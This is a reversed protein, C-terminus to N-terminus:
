RLFALLQYFKSTMHNYSNDFREKRIFGPAFFAYFSLRLGHEQHSCKTPPQSLKLISIPDIAIKHITPVDISMRQM